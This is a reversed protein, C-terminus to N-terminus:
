CGSVAVEKATKLRYWKQASVLEVYTCVFLVVSCIALSVVQFISLPAISMVVLLLAACITVIVSLICLIAYTM